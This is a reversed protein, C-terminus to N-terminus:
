AMQQCINVQKNRVRELVIWNPDPTHIEAIIKCIGKGDATDTAM